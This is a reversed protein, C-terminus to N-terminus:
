DTEYYTDLLKNILDLIKQDPKTQLNELRRSLGKEELKLLFVNAKYENWKSDGKFLINKVSKLTTYSIKIDPYDL